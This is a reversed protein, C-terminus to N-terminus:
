GPHEPLVLRFTAGTLARSDTEIVEIDADVSPTAWARLFSQVRHLGAGRGEGRTTWAQGFIRAPRARAREPLGPGSDRVVMLVEPSDLEVLVQIVGDQGGLAEAANEMVEYLVARLVPEPVAVRLGPPCRVDLRVGPHAEECETQLSGLVAAPEADQGAWAAGAEEIDQERLQREAEAALEEDAAADVGAARADRWRAHVPVTAFRNLHWASSVDCREERALALSGLLVTLQQDAEARLTRTI